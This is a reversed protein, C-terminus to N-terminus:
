ADGAVRLGGLRKRLDQLQSIQAAISRGAQVSAEAVAQTRRSMPRCPLRAPARYAPSAPTRTGADSGSHVSPTRRPRRPQRRPHQPVRQPLTGAHQAGRGIDAILAARGPACPRDAMEKGSLQTPDEAARCPSGARRTVQAAARPLCGPRGAGRARPRGAPSMSTPRM